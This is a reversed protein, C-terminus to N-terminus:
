RAATSTTVPPTKPSRSFLGNMIEDMLPSKRKAPATPKGSFLRAPKPAAPQPAPKNLMTVRSPLDAKPRPPFLGNMIENVLPHKIPEPLPPSAPPPAMDEALKQGFAHASGWKRRPPEEGPRPQRRMGLLVQGLLANGGLAALLKTSSPKPQENEQEPTEATVPDAVDMQELQDFEALKQGFEFASACKCNWKRLSKNIRSDPDSKTKSGTNVRKMGCMRSCFSKQRGAREGKPNSETVPAKLDGGHEREYSKRGKENLGGEDNKGESRQWAPTSGATKAGLAPSQPPAYLKAWDDATFADNTPLQNAAQLRGINKYTLHGSGIEDPDVDPSMATRKEARDLKRTAALIKGMGGSELLAQHAQFKEPSLAARYDPENHPYAKPQSHDLDLLTEVADLEDPVQDEPLALRKRLAAALEPSLAGPEVKSHASMPYASRSGGSAEWAKLMDHLGANYPLLAPTGAKKEAKYCSGGPKRCKCSPGCKCTAVTDGCGCSCPTNAAAIKSSDPSNKQGFAANGNLQGKAGLAGFANIPNFQPNSGGGVPDISLTNAATQYPQPQPQGPAATMGMPPLISPTSAAFRRL